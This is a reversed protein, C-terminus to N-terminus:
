GARHLVLLRGSLCVRSWWGQKCGCVCLLKLVRRDLVRRGVETLLREYDIEGFFNAIDFEVVFRYGEIFGTRLRQKAMMASWKLRFGYSCPLFDAEWILELVIRAATQAVWDRVMPVGLLRKGGRPKPIEVRRGSAPRYVGSSAIVSHRL